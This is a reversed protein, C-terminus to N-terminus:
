CGLRVDLHLEGSEGGEGNGHEAHARACDVLAVALANMECVAQLVRVQARDGVGHHDIVRVVRVGAPVYASHNVAIQVGTVAIQLHLGAPPM